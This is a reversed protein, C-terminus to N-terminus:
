IQFEKAGKITGNRDVIAINLDQEQWRLQRNIRADIIEKLNNWETFLLSKGTVLVSETNLESIRVWHRFYKQDQNNFVIYSGKSTIKFYFGGWHVTIGKAMEGDVTMEVGELLAVERGKMDMYREIQLLNKKILGDLKEKNQEKEKTFGELREQYETVRKITQNDYGISKKFKETIIDEGLEAVLLDLVETAEINNGVLYESVNNINKM